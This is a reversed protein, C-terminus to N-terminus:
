TRQRNLAQAFIFGSMWYGCRKAEREIMRRVVQSRTDQYIETLRKWSLREIRSKLEKATM